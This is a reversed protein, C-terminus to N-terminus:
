LPVHTMLDCAFDSESSRDCLTQLYNAPFINPIIILFRLDIHQTALSHRLYCNEKAPLRMPIIELM